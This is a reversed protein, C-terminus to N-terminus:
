ASGRPSAAHTGGVPLSQLTARPAAPPRKSPACLTQQLFCRGSSSVSYSSTLRSQGRGTQHRRLGRSPTLGPFLAPFAFRHHIKRLSTRASATPEKLAKNLQRSSGPYLGYQVFQARLMLLPHGANTGPVAPVRVLGQAPSRITIVSPQKHQASFPAVEM